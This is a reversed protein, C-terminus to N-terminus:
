TSSSILSSSILFHNHWHPLFFSSLQTEWVHLVNRECLASPLFLVLNWVIVKNYQGFKQRFVEAGLLGVQPMLLSEQLHWMGHPAEEKEKEEQADGGHVELQSKELENKTLKVEGCEKCQIQKGRAVQCYKMHVKLCCYFHFVKDCAKCVFSKKSSAKDQSEKAEKASAGGAKEKDKDLVEFQSENNVKWRGIGPKQGRGEILLGTYNSNQHHGTPSLVQGETEWRRFAGVYNERSLCLLCADSMNDWWLPSVCSQASTTRAM